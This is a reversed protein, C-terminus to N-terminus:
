LLAKLYDKNLVEMKYDVTKWILVYVNYDV